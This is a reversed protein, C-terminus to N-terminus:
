PFTKSAASPRYFATVPYRVDSGCKTWYYEAQNFCTYEVDDTLYNAAGWADYFMPKTDPVKPCHQVHIWCGAGATRIAGTPRYISTIPHNRSSGCYRWQAVARTLCKDEDHAANQHQEAFYDRNIKGTHLVHGDAPGGHKPCGYFAMFCGDGALRTAGSPGYIAAVQEDKHSGCYHWQAVARRFCMTENDAAHEHQEGYTDRYTGTNPHDKCGSVSLWCGEKSVNYIDNKRSGDPLYAPVPTDTSPAHTTCVGSSGKLDVIHSLGRHLNTPGVTVRPGVDNPSPVQKFNVHNAWEAAYCKVRYDGNDINYHDTRGLSSGTESINFFRPKNFDQSIHIYEKHPTNFVLNKVIQNGEPLSANQLSLYKLEPYRLTWLSSNYPVAHLRAILTKDNQHSSGRSDVQISYRTANYMVNNAIVNYRGGGINAHVNNDYFVNNTISTSSSQDDLMVGRVDAGPVLRLTHHVINYRIINGRTTWDRGTHFAGCDSANVCNHHLLNYEMLIDNGFYFVATYQGFYIHNYRVVHGVGNVSVGHNSPREVEVLSM